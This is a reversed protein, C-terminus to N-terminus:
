NWAEEHSVNEIDEKDVDEAIQCLYLDEKMELAEITLDKVIKSLSKDQMHALSSLLKITANEFTVNIRPNKTTM